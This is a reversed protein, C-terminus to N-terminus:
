PSCPRGLKRVGRSRHGPLGCRQRTLGRSQARRWMGGGGGDTPTTGLGDDANGWHGASPLARVSVEAVGAAASGSCLLALPSWCRPLGPDCADGVASPGAPSPRPLRRPPPASLRPVCVRLWGGDWPPSVCCCPQVASPPADGLSGPPPPPTTPSLSCLGRPPHSFVPGLRSPGRLGCGLCLGTM